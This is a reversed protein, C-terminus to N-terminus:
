SALCEALWRSLLAESVHRVVHSVSICVSLMCVSAVNRYGTSKVYYVEIALNIVTSKHYLSLRFQIIIKFQIGSKITYVYTKQM